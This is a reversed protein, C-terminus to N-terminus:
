LELIFIKAFLPHLRRPMYGRGGFSLAFFKFSSAFLAM